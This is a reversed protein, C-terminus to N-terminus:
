ETVQVAIKRPKDSEARPLRVTLVGNKYNAAVKDNDIDFPMAFSREFPGAARERRLFAQGEGVEQPPREGRLSLVNEEVVIEVKAPDVGPLDAAVTVGDEDSWGDVAPFLEGGERRGGLYDGFVGNVDRRLRRMEDWPTWGNNRIALAM